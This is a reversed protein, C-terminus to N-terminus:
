RAILGDQQLRERLVEIEIELEGTREELLAGRRADFSSEMDGVLAEAGARLHTAGRTRITETLTQVAQWAPAGM